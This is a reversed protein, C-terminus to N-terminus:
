FPTRIVEIPFINIRKDSEDSTWSDPVDYKINGITQTVTSASRLSSNHKSIYSLVAISMAIGIVISVIAVILGPVALGGGKSCVNKKILGVVSIILGAVGFAVSLFPIPIFCLCVAVISFIFGLIAATNAKNPLVAQSATYGSSFDIPAGCESCFRGDGSILSGCRSCNM